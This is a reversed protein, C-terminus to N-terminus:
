REGSWEALQGALALLDSRAVLCGGLWVGDAENRAILRRGNTGVVEAQGRSVLRYGPGGTTEYTNLAAHIDLREPRAPIVQTAAASGVVAAAIQMLSADRGRPNRM